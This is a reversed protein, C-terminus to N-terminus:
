RPYCILSVSTSTLVAENLRYHPPELTYGCDINQAFILFFIWFVNLRFIIMKVAKLFVSFIVYDHKRLATTRVISDSTEKQTRVSSCKPSYKDWLIQWKLVLEFKDFQCRKSKESQWWCAHIYVHVCVCTFLLSSTQSQHNKDITALASLNCWRVVWGNMHQKQQQNTIM